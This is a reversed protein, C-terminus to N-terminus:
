LRKKKKRKMRIDKQNEQREMLMEYVSPKAVKPKVALNFLGTEGEIKQEDSRTVAKVIDEGSLQLM